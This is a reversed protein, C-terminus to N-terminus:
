DLSHILKASKKANTKPQDLLSLGFSLDSTMPVSLLLCAASAVNKYKAQNNAKQLAIM